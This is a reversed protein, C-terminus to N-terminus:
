NHNIAKNGLCSLPFKCPVPLPEVTESIGESNSATCIVDGGVSIIQPTTTHVKSLDDSPPSIVKRGDPLTLTLTPAPDGLSTCNLEFRQEALKLWSVVPATPTSCTFDSLPVDMFLKPQPSTCQVLDYDLQKDVASSYFEKLWKLKCNCHLPNNAMTLEKVAFYVRHMNEPVTQFRNGDLYLNNLKSLEGILTWDLYSLKNRSLDLTEVHRLEPFIAPSIDSIGNGNFKLTKLHRLTKTASFTLAGIKPSESVTVLQARFNPNNMFQLQSDNLSTREMVLEHLSEMDSFTEYELSKVGSDVITLCEITTFRAFDARKLDGLNFNQLSMYVTDQPLNQPVSPENGKAM